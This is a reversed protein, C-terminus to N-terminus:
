GLGGKSKVRYEQVMTLGAEVNARTTKFFPHKPDLPDWYHNEYVSFDELCFEIYMVEPPDYKM